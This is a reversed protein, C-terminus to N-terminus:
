LKWHVQKPSMPLEDFVVTQVPGDAPVVYRYGYAQEHTVELLV